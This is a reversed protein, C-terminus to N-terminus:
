AATEVAPVVSTSAAHVAGRALEVIRDAGAALEPNHVVLLTTRGVALREIAAGISRASEADLHATPEDLVLLPADRLFARALAVRQTEGASLRRGGEGIRTALGNPLAAVVPDLAAASIAARVADAPADGAGLRVNEELTAAFITPRQPVWALRRRWAAPDVERLDTGDCRVAGSDPDLLRLVLAALTTKGEGSAGVLAVREGPELRLSVGALVPRGRGPHSVTVDDLVVEAVAPDPAPRPRVPARVAAPEALVALIQGAAALGDAGAHFQAGLQRIPQYLEPALILVALGTRLSLRGEALQIGVTAAVLATGLMACLELVLSSLFAVRLTAMTESRYAEGAAALTAAQEGDRDHARLTELGCVVDVFHAGLRSLTRLRRESSERAALGILVMFVPVLPVTVLLVIGAALDRPLVWAVLLLPVVVALVTQPLYRAFYAELADVGQVAATVLEGARRDRLGTPRARLVHEGLRARLDRMVRGAARRGSLEFGAAVLARGAVVVALLGLPGRLEALSRGAVAGAIVRALLAAQSVLLAAAAVGLVVAVVLPTRAPRSLRLLRRDVRSV